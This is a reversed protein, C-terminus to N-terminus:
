VLHVSTLASAIVRRHEGGRTWCWVLIEAVVTLPETVADAHACGLTPTAGALRALAGAGATDQGAHADDRVLLLQDVGAEDADAVVARLCAARAQGPDDFGVADIVVAGVGGSTVVQVLADRCRTSAAGPGCWLGDAGLVDAVEGRLAAVQGPDLYAAVM